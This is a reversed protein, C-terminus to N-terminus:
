IISKGVGNWTKVARRALQGLWLSEPKCENGGSQILSGWNWPQLYWLYNQIVSNVITSYDDTKGSLGPVLAYGYKLGLRRGLPKGPLQAPLSDVQLAPSGPEIGPNPLDGPSHISWGMWYEQAERTAWVYVIQRRHPLGPTSGQTPFIGQLLACCGLGTNKGPSGGHVSSGPPSCDMSDCLTLCSQTVLCVKELSLVTSALCM